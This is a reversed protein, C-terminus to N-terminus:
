ILVVKGIKVNAKKKLDSKLWLPVFGCLACLGFLFLLYDIM